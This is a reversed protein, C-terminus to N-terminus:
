TEGGAARFRFRHPDSHYIGNTIADRNPEFDGLGRGLDIVTPTGPTLPQACEPRIILLILHADEGFRVRRRDIQARFPPQFEM